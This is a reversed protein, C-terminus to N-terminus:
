SEWCLSGIRPLAYQIGPPDEAAVMSRFVSFVPPLNCEAKEEIADAYVSDLGDGHTQEVAVSM